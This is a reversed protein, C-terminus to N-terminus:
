PKRRLPNPARRRIRMGERISGAREILSHVGGAHVAAFAVKNWICPCRLQRGSNGSALIIEKM